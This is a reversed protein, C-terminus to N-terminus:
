AHTSTFDATLYSDPISHEPHACDCMRIYLMVFVNCVHSETCEAIAEPEKHHEPCFLDSTVLRTFYSECTIM